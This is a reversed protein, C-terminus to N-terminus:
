RENAGRSPADATPSRARAPAERSRSSPHSIGSRRQNVVRLLGPRWRDRHCRPGPIVKSVLFRRSAASPPHTARRFRHHATSAVFFVRSAGVCKGQLSQLPHTCVIVNSRLMGRVLKRESRGRTAAGTARSRRTTATTSAGSSTSPRRRGCAGSAPSPATTCPCSRDAGASGAHLDFKARGM